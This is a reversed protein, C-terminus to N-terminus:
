EHIQEWVIIEEKERREGKRQMKEKNLKRELTQKKESRKKETKCEKILGEHEYKKKPEEM